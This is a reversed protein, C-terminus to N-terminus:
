GHKQGPPCVSRAAQTGDILVPIGCVRPSVGKPAYRARTDLRAHRAHRADRPGSRPTPALRLENGHRVNDATRRYAKQMRRNAGLSEFRSPSPSPPVYLGWGGAPKRKHLLYRIMETKQEPRLTTGTVYTGIVLGPILFLPGAHSPTLTTYSPLPISFPRVATHEPGTGTPLNFRNIFNLGM